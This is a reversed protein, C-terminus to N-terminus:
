TQVVDMQIPLALIPAVLTIGLLKQDFSIPNSIRIQYSDYELYVRSSKNINREYFTNM